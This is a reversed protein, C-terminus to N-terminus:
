SPRVRPATFLALGLCAAIAISFFVPIAFIFKWAIVASAANALLFTLILGRVRLSSDVAISALQWLAVAQLLLFVSIFLGFGFYFDWYTRVLGMTEFRSTKMAQLVDTEGQPSWSARAGMTHGAAFLLAIVSALRLFHSPKMLPVIGSRRGATNYFQSAKVLPYTM